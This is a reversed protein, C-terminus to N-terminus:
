QGHSTNPRILRLDDLPYEDLGTETRVEQLQQNLLIRKLDNIKQILLGPSAEEAISSSFGHIPVTFLFDKGSGHHRAQGDYEVSVGPYDDKIVNLMELIANREEPGKSHVEVRVQIGASIWM